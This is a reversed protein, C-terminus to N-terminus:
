ARERPTIAAAPLWWTGDVKTGALAGAALKQRVAQASIGLASAAQGVSLLEPIREVDAPRRDFEETTMGTISVVQGGAVALATVLAQRLTEAEVTIIAEAWGLPSAAIAPHYEEFQDMLNDLTDDDFKRIPLEISINFQTM